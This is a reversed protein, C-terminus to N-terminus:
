RIGLPDQQTAALQPTLLTKVLESQLKQVEANEDAQMKFLGKVVELLLEDKRKKEENQGRLMEQKQGQEGTLRINEQQIKLAEKKRIELRYTLIMRAQNLMGKSVMDVIMLYDPYSINEGDKGPKLAELAAMLISEAFNKSPMMEIKIGYNRDAYERSIRFNELSARGMIPYYVDYGDRYKVQIRIREVANRAGSERVKTWSAIVPQIADSASAVTQNIETATVETGRPSVANLRDIGSLEAIFNFNIEFITVIENLLPGIGGAIPEIPKGQYMNYKGNHTTAKYVIDGTARKIEILQLPTMDGNGLNINNLSNFEIALGSPAAEAIANQLKLFALEIQDLPGLCREVVSKGPLSDAHISLQPIKKPGTRPIDNQMGYDFCIESGVIWSFKYVNPISIKRTQRKETNWVKGWESSGYVETGYKTKRKTKYETDVSKVEGKIVPIIYNDYRYSNNIPDYISEVNDSRLSTNWIFEPNGFWDQYKQCYKILEDEPLGTKARITAISEFEMYAWFRTDKFGTERNGDIVLRAFDLYKYKVTGDIDVFDCYAACGIALMDFHYRRRVDKIDSVYDTYSLAKEFDVEHKLKFGGAANFSELEEMSAPVFKTGKDEKPLKANKRISKEIEGFQLEFYKDWMENEREVGSIPDVASVSIKQDQLELRGFVKSLYAPMPSFITWDINYFGKREPNNSVDGILVDMYKEKPQNGTAYQRLLEFRQMRDISVFAGNNIMKAYLAKAWAMGWQPGKKIEPDVDDSPFVYNKGIYNDDQYLWGPGKEQKTNGTAM